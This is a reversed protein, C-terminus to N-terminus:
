SPPLMTDNRDPLQPPEAVGMPRHLPAHFPSTEMAKVLAYECYPVRVKRQLSSAEGCHEATSWARQEAM